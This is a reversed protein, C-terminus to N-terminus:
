SSCTCTSYCYISYFKYNVELQLLIITVDFCHKFFTAGCMLTKLQCCYPLILTYVYMLMFTCLANKIRVELETFRGDPSSQLVAYMTQAVCFGHGWNHYSVPRYNKSVSLFFRLLKDASFSSAISGALSKFMTVAAKVAQLSSVQSNFLM